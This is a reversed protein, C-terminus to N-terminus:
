SIHYNNKVYDSIVENILDLRYYEKMGTKIHNFLPETLTGDRELDFDKELNGGVKNEGIVSIEWKGDETSYPKAFTLRISSPNVFQDLGRFLADTLEREEDTLREYAPKEKVTVTCTAFIGNETEAIVNTEGVRVGTVVGVSNVIAVSEDVSKWVVNSSSYDTDKPLVTYNLQKVGDVTIELTYMSLVISKPEAEAEANGNSAESNVDNSVASDSVGSCGSLQITLLACIVIAFFKKM